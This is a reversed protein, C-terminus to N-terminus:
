TMKSGDVKEFVDKMYDLAGVPVGQHRMICYATSMHFHFNPMAYESVYRQGRFTFNGMSTEMIIEKDELGDMSKPDVGELLEITRTIRDQLQEFTEEKDDFIPVSTGGLRQM